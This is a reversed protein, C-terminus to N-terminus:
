RKEPTGTKEKEGLYKEEEAQGKDSRGKEFTKDGQEM